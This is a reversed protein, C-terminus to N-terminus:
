LPPIQTDFQFYLLGDLIGGACALLMGCAVFPGTPDEAHCWAPCLVAPSAPLALVPVRRFSHRMCLSSGSRLCRPPREPSLGIISSRM